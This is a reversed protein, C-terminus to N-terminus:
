HTRRLLLNSGNLIRFQQLMHQDFHAHRLSSLLGLLLEKGKLFRILLALFLFVLLSALGNTLEAESRTKRNRLQSASCRYFTALLTLNQACCHYSNMSM